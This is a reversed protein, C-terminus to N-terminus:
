RYIDLLGEAIEVLVKSNAKDVKLITSQNFPILATSEELQVEVLPNVESEYFAIISGVLEDSQDHLNIGVIEDNYVRNENREPKYTENIFVKSKLLDKAEQESNCDELKVRFQNKKNPIIKEIFFPVKSNNMELFIADIESWELEDEFTQYLIVEGKFSFLKAINGIEFFKMVAAFRSLFFARM